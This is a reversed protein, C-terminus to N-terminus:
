DSDATQFPSDAMGEAIKHVHTYLNRYAAEQESDEPNYRVDTPFLAIFRKNVNKGFGAVEYSPFEEYSTDDPDFAMITVLDGGFGDERASKLYIEVSTNSTQEYGWTDNDPMILLFDNGYLLGDKLESNAMIDYDDAAQTTETAETTQAETTETNEEDSGSGTCGAFAFIMVTVLGAMLLKRMTERM